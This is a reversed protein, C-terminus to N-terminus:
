GQILWVVMSSVGNTAAHIEIDGNQGTIHTRIRFSSTTPVTIPLQFSVSDRLVGGGSYVTPQVILSDPGLTLITAWDDPSYKLGLLASRNTQAKNSLGAIHVQVIITNDTSTAPVTVDLGTWLTGSSLIDVSGSTINFSDTYVGIVHGAPFTASSLASNINVSSNLTGSTVTGLANLGSGGTVTSDLTANKINGANLYETTGDSSKIQDVKVISVM